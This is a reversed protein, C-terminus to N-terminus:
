RIHYEDGAVELADNKSSVGFIDGGMKVVDAKAL